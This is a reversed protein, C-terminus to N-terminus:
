VPTNRTERAAREKSTARLRSKETANEYWKANITTLRATRPYPALPENRTRKGDRRLFFGYRRNKQDAMRKETVETPMYAAVFRM